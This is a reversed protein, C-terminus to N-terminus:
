QTHSQAEGPSEAAIEVVRKADEPQDCAAEVPQMIASEVAAVAIEEPQVEPVSACCWSCGKGAEAGELVVVGDAVVEQADIQAESPAEIAIEATRKADEPQDCAAEVPQMIASEVAADAIEETQVAPASACCWGCSTEVAASELVAVGDDAVVQADAQAGGPSEAAIEVIRKAGESQDCAAEVPQMIASEVAADAQDEPQVEPVSACCWGCSTEVDAGEMVVGSDAVVEQADVPAEAAADAANEIVRKAGEPQDCAAEVPQMITREAAADAKAEPQVAPASAGVRGKCASSCAGM